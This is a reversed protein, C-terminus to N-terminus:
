CDITNVILNLIFLSVFIAIVNNQNDFSIISPNPLLSYVPYIQAVINRITDHLMLKNM